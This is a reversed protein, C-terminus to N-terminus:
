AVSLHRAQKITSWHKAMHDIHRDAYEKEAVVDPLVTNQTDRNRIANNINKSTLINLLSM